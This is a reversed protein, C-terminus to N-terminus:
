AMTITASFFFSVFLLIKSEDKLLDKSVLHELKSPFTLLPRQYEGICVFFNMNVHRPIYFPVKSGFITNQTSKERWQYKNM